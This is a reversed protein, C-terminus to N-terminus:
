KVELHIFRSKERFIAGKLNGWLGRFKGRPTLRLAARGLFASIPIHPFNTVFRGGDPRLLLFSMFKKEGEFNSGSRGQLM